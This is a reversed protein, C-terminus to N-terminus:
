ASPQECNIMWAIGFRDVLMAFKVAWFTQQLPMEVKGGSALENYMREAEAPDKTSVSLSFGQPEKYRDPPADSGMVVTNGVTMRAHMIKKGWDPPAQQAMPSEGFTFTAEIKGGLVREYFKFAEECRGNFVLYPNVQAKSEAVPSQQTGTQSM